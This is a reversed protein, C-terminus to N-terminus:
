ADEETDDDDKILCKSAFERVLKIQEDTKADFGGSFAEWTGVVKDLYDCLKKEREVQCIYQRLVEITKWQTNTEVNTLLQM